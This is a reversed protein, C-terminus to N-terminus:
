CRKRQRRQLAPLAPGAAVLAAPAHPDAGHIAAAQKMTPIDGHKGQAM